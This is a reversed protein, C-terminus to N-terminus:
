SSFFSLIEDKFFFVTVLAGFLLLLLFVLIFIATKGKPKEAQGYSSINQNIQYPQQIQIQPKQVQTQQTNLTGYASVKQVSQQPQTQLQSSQQVQTQQIQIQPQQFNMGSKLVQAAEEIEAKTYGANYFSMMAQKLSQGRALASNLGGLIDDRVM